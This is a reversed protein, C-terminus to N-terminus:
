NWLPLIGPASKRDYLTLRLHATPTVAALPQAVIAGKSLAPLLRVFLAPHESNMMGAALQLSTVSDGDGPIGIAEVRTGNADIIVTKNGVQAVRDCRVLVLMARPALPNRLQQRYLELVTKWDPLAREYVQQLVEPTVPNQLETGSEWRIRRNYYGPYIAAAPVQLVNLFSPHKEICFKAHWPRLSMAQYIRGDALDILMSTEMTQSRAHDEVEEYALEMLSLQTKWYGREELETMKWVKGLIEDLNADVEIASEDSSMQEDIYARGKQVSAWLRVLQDSVRALKEADSLHENKGLQVLELVRYRLPLLAADALQRSQEDLMKLRSEDFIDGASVWDILM